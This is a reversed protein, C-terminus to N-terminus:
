IGKEATSITAVNVFLFGVPFIGSPKKSTAIHLALLM